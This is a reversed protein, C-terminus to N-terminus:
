KFQVPGDTKYLGVRITPEAILERNSNSPPTSVVSSTSSTTAVDSSILIPLNVTGGPLPRGDIVLEFQTLYEGPKPPTQLSFEAQLIEGPNVVSNGEVIKSPSVWSTDAVSVTGLGTIDGRSPLTSIYDGKEFVFEYL